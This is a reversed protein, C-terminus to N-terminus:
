DIVTEVAEADAPVEFGALLGSGFTGGEGALREGREGAFGGGGCRGDEGGDRLAWGACDSQAQAPGLGRRSVV